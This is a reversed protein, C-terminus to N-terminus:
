SYYNERFVVLLGCVVLLWTSVEENRVRGANTFRIRQEGREEEVREM